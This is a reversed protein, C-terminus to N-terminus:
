RAVPQSLLSRAKPGMLALMPLGSTVDRVHVHAGEPIARTLWALDRRQSIAITVVLFSTESLRTM